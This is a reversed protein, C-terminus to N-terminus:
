DLGREIHHARDFEAEDEADPAADDRPNTAFFASQAANTEPISM